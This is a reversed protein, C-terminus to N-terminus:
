FYYENDLSSFLAPNGYRQTPRPKADNLDSDVDILPSASVVTGAEFLARAFVSPESPPDLSPQRMPLPLERMRKLSELREIHARLQLSEDELRQMESRLESSTMEELLREAMFSPSQLPALAISHDHRARKPQPTPIFHSTANHFVEQDCELVEGSEDWVEDIAEIDIAEVEERSRRRLRSAASDAIATFQAAEAHVNVTRAL